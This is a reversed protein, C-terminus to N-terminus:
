VAVCYVACLGVEIIYKLDVVASMTKVQAAIVDDVAKGRLCAVDGLACGVNGAFKGSLKRMDTVSKMPITFPNSEMIAQHFLGQSLRSTMHVATSMAGASQGFLTVRMTDGGFARANQQVWQLALRQDMINFNGVIGSGAEGVM